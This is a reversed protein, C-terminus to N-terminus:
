DGVETTQSAAVRHRQRVRDFWFVAGIAATTILGSIIISALPFDGLANGVYYALLVTFTAWLTGGISSWVLFRRYPMRVVGLTFNVALRVGPVFRGLVIAIPGRKEIFGVGKQIRENQMLQELRHKVPGQHSSRAIWYVASDGAIAGAAGAVIVPVLELEGQSALIAATNLTTEGPLIPIIADGFVLAFIALYPIVDGGNDLLGLGDTYALLPFFLVLPIV